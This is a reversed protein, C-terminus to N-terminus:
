SELTENKQAVKLAVAITLLLIFSRAPGELGVNFFAYLIGAFCPFFIVYLKEKLLQILCWLHFILFFVGLVGLRALANLYSNHPGAIPANKHPPDHNGDNPMFGLTSGSYFRYVVQEKYGIGLFPNQLFLNWADRLLHIRYAEGLGVTESKVLSSPLLSESPKNAYVAAERSTFVKNQIHFYRDSSKVFVGYLLAISIVLGMKSFFPIMSKNYKFMYCFISVSVFISGLLNTRSFKTSGDMGFAMGLSILVLLSLFKNKALLAYALLGYCGFSLSWKVATYQYFSGSDAVNKPNAIWFFLVSWLLTLLVIPYFVLFLKKWYELSIPFFSILLPTFLYFVFSSNRLVLIPNSLFDPIARLLFLFIFSVIILYKKQCFASLKIKRFFIFICFFVFTVLTYIEFIFIKPNQLVTSNSLSIPIGIKAFQTEGVIFGLGLLFTILLFWLELKINSSFINKMLYGPCKGCPEVM